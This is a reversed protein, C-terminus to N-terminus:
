QKEASFFPMKIKGSNEFHLDSIADTVLRGKILYALSPQKMKRWELVQRFLSALDSVVMIEVIAEGMRPLTVPQASVGTAFLQGNLYLEFSMGTIPIAVGNPNQVRLQVVFRQELLSAEIAKLGVLTVSPAQLRWFSCGGLSLGLWLVLWLSVGGRMRKRMMMGGQDM